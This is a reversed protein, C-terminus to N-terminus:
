IRGPVPLHIARLPLVSPDWTEAFVFSPQSGPGRWWKTTGRGPEPLFQAKDAM